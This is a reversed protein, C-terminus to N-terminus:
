PFDKLCCRGSPNYSECACLKNKTKEIVYQKLQPNNKVERHTIDFCYCSMANDNEPEKIGVLTRLAAKKIISNDEAFYVVDCDPDTCFYYGQETLEVHEPDWPKKLHQLVTSFPVQLYEKDNESCTHHKPSETTPSSSCCSSM